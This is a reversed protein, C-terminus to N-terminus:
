DPGAESNVSGTRSADDMTDQADRRVAEDRERWQAATMCTRRAQLRSGIPPDELKCIRRESAQSTTSTGSQPNDLALAPTAVAMTLGLCVALRM